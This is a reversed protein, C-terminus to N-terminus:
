QEIFIYVQMAVSVLIVGIQTKKDGRNDTAETRTKKKHTLFMKGFTVSVNRQNKINVSEM